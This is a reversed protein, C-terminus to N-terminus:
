RNKDGQHLLRWNGGFRRNKCSGCPTVDLFVGNKLNNKPQYVMNVENIGKYLDRINKNKSNTALENIKSEFREGKEKFHGSAERIVKYGKDFWTKQKKLEYYGLIVKNSIKINGRISKRVSNIEVEADLDRLQLGRQYRLV